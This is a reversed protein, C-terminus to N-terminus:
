CRASLWPTTPSSTSSAPRFGPGNRWNVLPWRPLRRCASACNQPHDDSRSFELAYDRRCRWHAAAHGPDQRRQSPQATDRRRGRKAEEAYFEVYAAAYDIEGLAEALPKGQEATLISALDDRHQTMLDFWRRLIRSREKATCAAWDRFARKAAEVSATAEEAGFRPVNAIFAGDAPNKVSDSPTGVFHGDVLCQNRLLARDALPLPNM